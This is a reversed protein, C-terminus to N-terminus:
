ISTSAVFFVFLINIGEIAEDQEETKNKLKEVIETVSNQEM